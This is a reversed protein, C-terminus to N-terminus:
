GGLMRVHLYTPVSSTKGKVDVFKLCTKNEYEAIVAKIKDVTTEVFSVGMTKFYYFCRANSLTFLLRHVKKQFCYFSLYHGVFLYSFAGNDIIIFAFIRNNSFSQFCTM